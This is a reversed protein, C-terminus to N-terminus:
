VAQGDRGHLMPRWRRASRRVSSSSGATMPCSTGSPRTRASGRPGRRWGRPTRVEDLVPQGTILEAARFWGVYSGIVIDLFGVDDGSFFRRGKSCGAFAEELQGLAAVVQEAAEAKNGDIM